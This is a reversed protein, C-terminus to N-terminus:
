RFVVVLSIGTVALAGGVGFLVDAGAAQSRATTVESQVEAAPQKTTRLRSENGNAAVGLGVGAALACAGAVTAVWGVVWGARTPRRHEPVPVPAKVPPPPAVEEPLDSLSPATPAPHSPKPAPGAAVAPPTIAAHVWVDRGREVTM